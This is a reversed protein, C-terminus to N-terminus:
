LFSLSKGRARGRRTNGLKANRVQAQTPFKGHQKVFSRLFDRVKDEHSLV